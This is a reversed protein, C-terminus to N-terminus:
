QEKEATMKHIRQYWKLAEQFDKQAITAFFALKAALSTNKLFWSETAYQLARESDKQQLYNRALRLKEEVANLICIFIELECGCRSCEMLDVNKKRCAPCVLEM